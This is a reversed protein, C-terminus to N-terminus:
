QHQQHEGDLNLLREIEIIKAKIAFALDCLQIPKAVISLLKDDKTFGTLTRLHSKGNKSKIGIPMKGLLM